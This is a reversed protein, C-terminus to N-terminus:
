GSSGLAWIRPLFGYRFVMSGPLRSLRAVTSLDCLSLSRDFYTILAQSCDAAFSCSQIGREHGEQYSKVSEGTELDWLVLTWDKSASFARDGDPCFECAVVAGEHGVLRRIPIGTRLNWHILTKDESATLASKGDPSFACCLVARQHGILTQIPEGKKVDWLIANCDDSASLAQTGDTNFVCFLVNDRHGVLFRVQAPDTSATSWSLRLHRNQMVDKIRSALRDESDLLAQAHLQPLLAHGSRINHTQRSIINRLAGLGTGSVPLEGLENGLMLAEVDTLKSLSDPALLNGSARNLTQEVFEQDLKKSFYEHILSHLRITTKKNDPHEILNRDYLGRLALHYPDRLADTEAEDVVLYRLFESRIVTNEPIMAVAKLLRQWEARHKPLSKLCEEILGQLARDVNARYDALLCPDEDLIEIVGDARLAKALVTFRAGHERVLAGAMRLTLPLGGLSSAVRALAADEDGDLRQLGSEQRLVTCSASHNLREIELDRCGSLGRFRTTVLLTCGLATLNSSILGALSELLEPRELNDAVLLVDTRNWVKSLWREALERDRAEIDQLRSDLDFAPAFAGAIQRLIAKASHDACNLWFIGVPYAAKYTHVYLAALQTKGIGGQGILAPTVAVMGEQLWEHLTALAASRGVLHEPKKFPVVFPASPLRAM